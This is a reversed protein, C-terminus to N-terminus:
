EESNLTNLTKTDLTKYHRHMLMVLALAISVEAAAVALIFLFMVQGDAQHYHAGTMIFALGASNMMIEISMLMFLFNRRVLLGTLGISFLIGAILLQYELSIDM